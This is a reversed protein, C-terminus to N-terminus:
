VQRVGALTLSVVLSVVFQNTVSVLQATELDDWELRTRTKAIRKLIAGYQTEVETNGNMITKMYYM